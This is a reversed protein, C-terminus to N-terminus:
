SAKECPGNVVVSASNCPVGQGPLISCKWADDASGGLLFFFLPVCRGCIGPPMIVWPAPISQFALSQSTAVGFVSGTLLGAEEEDRGSGKKPPFTDHIGHM